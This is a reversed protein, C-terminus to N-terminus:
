TSERETTECEEQTERRSNRDMVGLGALDDMDARITGGSAGNSSTCALGVGVDNQTMHGISVIGNRRHCMVAARVMKLWMHRSRLSSVMRQMRVTYCTQVVDRGMGIIDASRSTDVTVGIDARLTKSINTSTFGEYRGMVLRGMGVVTSGMGESLSLCMMIRQGCVVEWGSVRCVTRVVTLTCGVIAVECSIVLGSGGVVASGCVVDRSTVGGLVSMSEVWSTVGSIGVARHAIRIPMFTLCMHEALDGVMNRTGLLRVSIGSPVGLL